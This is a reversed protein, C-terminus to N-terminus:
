TQLEQMSKAVLVIDDAYRLNNVLRRGVAIGTPHHELAKQMVHEAYINFLHPSLICGQLVGQGIEFADTIGHTTRVTAKQSMYLNRILDILHKTFGIEAMVNWLVEHVVTDFAKRYDIFCLYVDTGVERSKELLM